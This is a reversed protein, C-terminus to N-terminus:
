GATQLNANNFSGHQITLTKNNRLTLKDMCLCVYIYRQPVSLMNLLNYVYINSKTFVLSFDSLRIIQYFINLVELM